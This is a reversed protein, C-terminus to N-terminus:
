PAPEVPLSDVLVTSDDGSRQRAQDAWERWAREAAHSRAEASDSFATRPRRVMVFRGRPPRGVYPAGGWRGRITDGRQMGRLALGAHTIHPTVRASFVAPSDVRVVMEEAADAAALGTTDFTARPPGRRPVHFFPETHVYFRGIRYAFGPREGEIERNYADSIGEGIVATGDIPGRSGPRMEGASDLWMRVSWEGDVAHAPPNGARCAALLSLGLLASRAPRLAPIPMM